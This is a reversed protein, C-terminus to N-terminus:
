PGRPNSSDHPASWELKAKIRSNSSRWVRGGIIDARFGRMKRCMEDLQSSYSAPLDQDSVWTFDSHEIAGSKIEASSRLGDAIPLGLDVKPPSCDRRIAQPSLLGQLQRALDNPSVVTIDLLPDDNSNQTTHFLVLRRGNLIAAYSAAVEPHRAYSIAQEIEHRVIDVNPAKVELVWRGAGTVSLVYDPIGRIPPDSKKKRGLFIREYALPLERLIDNPSGRQYGLAILLPMAIEERVDTENATNLHMRQCAFQNSDTSTGACSSRM